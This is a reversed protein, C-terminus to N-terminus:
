TLDGISAILVKDIVTERGIPLKDREFGRNLSTFFTYGVQSTISHGIHSRAERCM